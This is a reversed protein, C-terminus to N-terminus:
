VAVRPAPDLKPYTHAGAWNHVHGDTRGYPQELLFPLSVTPTHRRMHSM